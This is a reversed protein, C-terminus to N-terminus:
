RSVEVVHCLYIVSKGSELMELAIQVAEGESDAQVFYVKTIEVKYTM